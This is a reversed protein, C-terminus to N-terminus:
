PDLTERGGERHTHTHVKSDPWVQYSRRLAGVLLLNGHWCTMHSPLSSYKLLSQKLRGLIIWTVWVPACVSNYARLAIWPAVGVILPHALTPPTVPAHGWRISKVTYATCVFVRGRNTLVATAADSASLHSIADGRDVSVGPVQLSVSTLPWPDFTVDSVARMSPLSSHSREFGLQGLNQGGTYLETLTALVTHYRGAGVSIVARHKM